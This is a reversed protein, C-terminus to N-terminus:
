FSNPMKTNTGKKRGKSNKRRKGKMCRQKRKMNESHKKWCRILSKGQKKTPDLCMEGIRSGQQVELIVEASKCHAAPDTVTFNRIHKPHIFKSHRICQCRTPIHLAETQLETLNVAFLTCLVSCLAVQSVPAM